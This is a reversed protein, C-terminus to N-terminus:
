ALVPNRLGCPIGRHRRDGMSGGSLEAGVGAWRRFRDSWAVDQVSIGGGAPDISSGLDSSTPFLLNQMPATVGFHGNILSKAPERVVIEVM